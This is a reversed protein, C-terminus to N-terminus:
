IREGRREKISGKKNRRTGKKRRLIRLIGM